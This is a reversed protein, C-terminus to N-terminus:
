CIKLSAFIAEINSVPLAIEFCDIIFIVVHEFPQVLNFRLDVCVPTIKRWHMREFKKLSLISYTIVEEIDNYDTSYFFGELFM